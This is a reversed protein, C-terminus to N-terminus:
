FRIEIGAGAGWGDGTALFEITANYKEYVACQLGVYGGFNSDAELDGSAKGNWFTEGPAEAVTRHTADIDGDLFYFLPGGYLKCGGMDLTPGVAVLIEMADIDVTQKWTETGDVGKRDWGSDWWNMQLTAGWAVKEQKVFTYSTGWGYAFDNDFNFSIPGDELFNLDAGPDAQLKVDAVGLQAYVQWADSLGYGIRGYYLNRNFDEIKVKSTGASDFAGDALWIWKLSTTDLDQTTYTYNFGGSWQGQDLRPQLVWWRSPM